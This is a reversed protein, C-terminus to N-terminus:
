EKTDTITIETFKVAIREDKKKPNSLSQNTSWLKGVSTSLNCNNWHDMWNKWKCENIMSIIESTTLNYNNWHDM